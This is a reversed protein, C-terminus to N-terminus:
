TGDEVEFERRYTEEDMGAREVRQIDWDGTNWGMQRILRDRMQQETEGREIRAERRMHEQRLWDIHWQREARARFPDYTVWGDHNIRFGIEGIALDRRRKAIPCLEVEYEEMCCRATRYANATESDAPPNLEMWDRIQRHEPFGLPLRGSPILAAEPVRKELREMRFLTLQADDSLVQEKL